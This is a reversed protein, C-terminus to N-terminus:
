RAAGPGPEGADFGLTGCLVSLFTTKGCGSPGVIMTLEGFRVDLNVGKLAPVASDGTGFTKTVGRAQIAIPPNGNAPATMSM